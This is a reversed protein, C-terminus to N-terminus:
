LRDFVAQVMVIRSEERNRRGARSIAALADGMVLHQISHVPVAAATGTGMTVENWARARFGAAEIVLRMEVPTRLFSTTADRAWMVPFIPPQVPGAMPEQLALMGGSRLVRHFGMYLRQKDAINMGSNQTWVVDFTGHDFPLDLANGAHHTVRDGLGLRATLIEAARVYSETLDVVTVHCGFEVALTRAPGGLGGGVDLVRTGPSLGALRALRVTAAKGGGHFQDTPALDDISLRDLNKGSAALADLIRQGLGDRGWYDSIATTDSVDRM